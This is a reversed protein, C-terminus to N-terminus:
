GTRPLSGAGDCKGQSDPNTSNFRRHQGPHSFLHANSDAGAAGRGSFSLVEHSGHRRGVLGRNTNENRGTDAGKRRVDIPIFIDDTPGTYDMGYIVWGAMEGLASAAQISNMNTFMGEYDATMEVIENRYISEIYDFKIHVLGGEM